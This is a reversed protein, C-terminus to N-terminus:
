LSPVYYSLELINHQCRQYLCAVATQNLATNLLLSLTYLEVLPLLEETASRFTTNCSSYIYDKEEVYQECADIFHRDLTGTMSKLRSPLLKRCCPCLWSKFNPAIPCLLPRLGRARLLAGRPPTQPPDGLQPDPPMGPFNQLNMM